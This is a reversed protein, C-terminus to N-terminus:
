APALRLTGTVAPQGSGAPTCSFRVEGGTKETWSVILTDGPRVPQHFKASRIERCVAAGGAVAMVIERLLVAGPIIPNGPFHGAASRDGIAFHLSASNSGPM